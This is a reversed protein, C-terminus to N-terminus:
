PLNEEKEACTQQEKNQIYFQKEQSPKQDRESQERNKGWVVAYLAGVM